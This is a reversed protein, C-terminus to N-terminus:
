RTRRKGLVEDMWRGYEPLAKLVPVALIEPVEYPHVKRVAKEVEPYLGRSTKLIVFFESATEIRGKWWYTSRVPGSVQGCAVLKRGLLLRVASDATKRSPFTVFVQVYRPSM